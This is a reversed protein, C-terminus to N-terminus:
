VGYQQPITSNFYLGKELDKKLSELDFSFHLKQRDDGTKLHEFFKRIEASSALHSRNTDFDLFGSFRDFPVSLAKAGFMLGYEGFLLLKSNFFEPKFNL